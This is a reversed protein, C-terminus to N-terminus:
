PHNPPTALKKARMFSDICLDELSGLNKAGLEYHEKTVFNEFKSMHIVTNIEDVHEEWGAHPERTRLRHKFEEKYADNIAKEGSVEVGNEKMVSYVLEPSVNRDAARKMKWFGNPSFKENETLTSMTRKLRNTRYVADQRTELEVVRELYKKVIKRQVKGKKAVATLM